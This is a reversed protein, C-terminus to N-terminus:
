GVVGAKRMQGLRSRLRAPRQAPHAGSKGTRAVHDAGFAALLLDDIIRVHGPQFRYKLAEEVAAVREPAVLERLDGVTTVGNADLLEELWAYHESKSRPVTPLLLTLLGPLTEAGLEVANAAAEDDDADRGGNGDDGREEDLIAAVQDFQQDALEILGAALAFARDIRPDIAGDPSKYRIDHEFEAWAHQLVTRVQVEFQQGRYPALGPPAGDGVRCVLHHSGYGFQGSIRTEATKDTTRLVELSDGLVALVDPIENSHYTTVRVGVIDHIDHWPDPYHFEGGDTRRMAKIRLSRWTKVRATVSDFALGADSLLEGIAGAFDDKARPHAATWEDYRAHLERLRASGRSKAM